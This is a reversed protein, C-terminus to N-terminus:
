PKLSEQLKVLYQDILDYKYKPYNTRVFQELVSSFNATQYDHISLISLSEKWMNRVFACLPIYPPAYFVANAALKNFLEKTLCKELDDLIQDARCYKGGEAVLHALIPFGEDQFFTIMYQQFGGDLAYLMDQSLLYYDQKFTEIRFKSAYRDCLDKLIRNELAIVQDLVPAQHGLITQIGHKTRSLQDFYASKFYYPTKNHILRIYLPATQIGHFSVSKLRKNLYVQYSIRPQDKMRLIIKDFIVM